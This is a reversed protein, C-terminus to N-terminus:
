KMTYGNFTTDLPSIMAGKRYVMMYDNNVLASYEEDVGNNNITVVGEDNAKKMMDSMKEDEMNMRYLYVREGNLDFMRGEHAAFDMNEIETMNDYTIGATDFSNMMDQITSTKNTSDNGNMDSDTGNMNDETKPDNNEDGGFWSCGTLTFLTVVSLISIMKNLKM